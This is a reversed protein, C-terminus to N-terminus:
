RAETRRPVPEHVERRRRQEGPAPVRTSSIGELDKRAAQEPSTGADPTTKLFVARAKPDMVAYDLAQKAAALYKEAHVPSLFLTEAANDFGEGGAGDAPLDRGANIHINLLDSITAAYENRNLRRIPAHGPTPGAACATERLTHDLWSVFQDRVEPTPAPLGKPPMEGSRVRALVRTWLPLDQPKSRPDNLRSISFGALHSKEGHCSACNKELLQRSDPFSFAPADAGFSALPILALCFLLRSM